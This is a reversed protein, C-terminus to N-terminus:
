FGPIQVPTGVVMVRTGTGSVVVTVFPIPRPVLGATPGPPKSMGTVVTVTVWVRWPSVTVTKKVTGWTPKVVVSAVPM